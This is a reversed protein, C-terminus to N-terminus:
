APPEADIVAHLSNMKHQRAALEVTDYLRQNHTSLLELLDAHEVVSRRARGPALAYSPRQILDLRSWENAIVDRLHMDGCHDYFVFHFERNLETFRGPTFDDLASIMQENIARAEELNADTLRSLAEATALGELRSLLNVTHELAEREFVAVRAGFNQATEVWGQAELRRLAERWPVTSIGTERALQDVILRYGPGYTGDSIRTRLIAYAAEAKGERASPRGTPVDTRNTVM